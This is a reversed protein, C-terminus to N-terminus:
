GPFWRSLCSYSRPMPSREVRPPPPDRPTVDCARRPVRPSWFAGCAHAITSGGIGLPWKDRSRGLVERPFVRIGKGLELIVMSRQSVSAIEECSLLELEKLVTLLTVILHYLDEQEKSSFVLPGSRRCCNPPEPRRCNQVQVCSPM